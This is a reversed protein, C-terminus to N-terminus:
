RTSLNLLTSVAALIDDPKLHTAPEARAFFKEAEVHLVLLEEVRTRLNSNGACAQDLFAGRKAPDALMLAEYFSAMEQENLDSMTKM